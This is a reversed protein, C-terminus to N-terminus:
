SGSVSVRDLTATATQTNDHSGIPLGVLVNQPLTVSVTAIATWTTGDASYSAAVSNDTRVLKV